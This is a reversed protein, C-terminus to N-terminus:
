RVIAQLVDRTIPGAEASGLEGRDLVAVVVAQPQTRPAYAAFLVHNQRGVDEATGSKGAADLGSGVFVSYATGRPDQVVLRMGERIVALTADSAPLRGLDKAVFQQGRSGRGETSGTGTVLVPSRLTGSGAIASFMNAIQLPTMTVYGQGISMNVSDGAYWSDRLAQEKWAPGPDIGAAEDIGDIGTPKGAGFGAAAQSLINPDLRDLTLGIQYFVPDCSRMLGQAITLPGNDDPTWNHKAFQAGLGYWVPTCPLTSTSTFGGRELGAAATIVKFTSGPPYTALVPRNLFPRGPDDQLRQFQQNSLGSSFDNPDFSPYSALALVSNDRPDLVVVSGARSGLAKESAAEATIDLTLSVDVAPAGDRRAIETVAQGAPTVVQLHAGRKGALNDQFSAELGSQGVLDGEQYGESRLRSLQDGSISGLYGITQAALTGQPYIRRETDEVLVGPVQELEGRLGVPANYPLTKLPIFSDASTNGDAIKAQIQEAPIQIKEALAAVTAQPDPVSAPSQMLRRSTGITPVTGTTALPEGNRDLISGRKPIDLSLHILNDGNLQRFILSPSWQVRWSGDQVLPLNNDQQISGFLDTVYTISYPYATADLMTTAPFDITTATITAETAINQFRDVFPQRALKQQSHSSLLDWMESYRGAQWLGLFQRAVEVSHVTGATATEGTATGPARAASPSQTCASLTLFIFALLYGTFLRLSAELRRRVHLTSREPDGLATGM